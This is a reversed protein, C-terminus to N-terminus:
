RSSTASRCWTTSGRRTRRRKLGICGHSKNASGIHGEAWEAQHAYTGSVTLITGEKGMLPMKGSWTPTSAPDGATIPVSKVVAGDRELTLPHRAIDM